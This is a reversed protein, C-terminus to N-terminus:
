LYFGYKDSFIRIFNNLKMRSYTNKNTQNKDNYIPTKDLLSRIFFYECFFYKFNKETTM